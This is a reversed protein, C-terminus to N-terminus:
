RYLRFRATLPLLVYAATLAFFLQMALVTDNLTIQLGAFVLSGILAGVNLSTSIFYLYVIRHGTARDATDFIGRMYAMMYGTTALENTVNAMVVGPPTVVFTRFIHTMANGITAIKLLDGGHRWDIIRGYSYAALFSTVATISVFAGITFYIDNGTSMFVTITIFLIWVVGSAFTDFGVSTEAIISRRVMRWPFDRFRLKQNLRVPEKTKFLPLSAMAFLVASLWMTAAPFILFAVVGGLLPSLSATLRDFIQMYGIEKGAHEVHKVKSFDVMYSLDFTVMSLSQFVGFAAIALLGGDSVLSFCVLAPIYLLNAALAGHKPGFKAVYLAAPYAVAARFAFSAAYFLTIFLVSYGQQYLFLAVFINIMFQAMLRMVRAAYLEGVEDFNAHRWFHRRQLLRHILSQIM